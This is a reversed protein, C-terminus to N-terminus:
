DISNSKGDQMLVPLGNLTSVIQNNRDVTLQDHFNARLEGM